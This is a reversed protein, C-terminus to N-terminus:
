EIRWVRPKESKGTARDKSIEIGTMQSLATVSLGVVLSM